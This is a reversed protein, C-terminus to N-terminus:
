TKLVFFRSGQSIGATRALSQDYKAAMAFCHWEIGLHIVAGNEGVM